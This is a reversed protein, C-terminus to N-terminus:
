LVYNAIDNGSTDSVCVVSRRVTSRPPQNNTPKKQQKKQLEARAIGFPYVLIRTYTKVVFRYTKFNKNVAIIIIIKRISGNGVANQRM